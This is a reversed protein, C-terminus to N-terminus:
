PAVWDEDVVEFPVDIPGTLRKRLSVPLQAELMKIQDALSATDVTHVHESKNIASLGQLALTLKVASLHDKHAPNRVVQALAFRAAPLDEQLRRETEEKMAALVRPHRLLEHARVREGTQYGAARASATANDGGTEVYHIVFNRQMETLALM